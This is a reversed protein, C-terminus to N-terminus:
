NDSMMYPFGIIQPLWYFFYYNFALPWGHTKLLAFSIQICNKTYVNYACEYIYIYIYKLNIFTTKKKILLSM